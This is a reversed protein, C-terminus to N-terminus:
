LGNNIEADSLTDIRLDLYVTQRYGGLGFNYEVKKILYKGNREPLVSDRLIAADGQKVFPLGFTTFKGVFGEFYIRNLRAQAQAKLDSESKVNWFYLTRVEGDTPGVSVELRKKKTKNKGDSTTTNLEFEDISYAKIGIRVDDVRRYELDDDIINQQFQFIVDNRDGPYYVLGSCTLIDGRFFSEIKYENQIRNLVQAVTENQTRFDGVSTTIDTRITFGTGKLLETIMQQLTYESSKFVKNPAQIQKLKWMNDELEVTIPLKNTIKSIFGNYTNTMTTKENNQDDYYRYGLDVSIKDGRLLVPAITEGSVINKGQLSVTNGNEDKFYINKPFTIKGTNTLDEWSDSSYFDNVFDFVYKKNRNPWDSVPQQTITINSKLILM